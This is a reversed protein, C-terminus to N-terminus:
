EEMEEILKGQLETPLEQYSIVKDDENIDLEYETIHDHQYFGQPHNPKGDSTIVIDPHIFITYRDITRGENDFCHFKLDLHQTAM